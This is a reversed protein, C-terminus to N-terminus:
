VLGVLQEFSDLLFLLHFAVVVLFLIACITKFCIGGSVEKGTVACLRCLVYEPSCKVRVAM